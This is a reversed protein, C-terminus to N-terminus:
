TTNMLNFPGSASGRHWPWSSICLGLGHDIANNALVMVPLTEPGSMVLQRLQGVTLEIVEADAACVNSKM